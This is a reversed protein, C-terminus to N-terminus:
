QHIEKQEMGSLGDHPKRGEARCGTEDGRRGVNSGLRKRVAIRQLLTLTRHQWSGSCITVSEHLM